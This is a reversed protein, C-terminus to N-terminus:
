EMAELMIEEYCDECIEVEDVEIIEKHDTDVNKNCKACNIISM